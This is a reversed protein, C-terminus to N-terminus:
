SPLLRRTSRLRPYISITLMSANSPFSQVILAHTLTRIIDHGYFHILGHFLTFLLRPSATSLRLNPQHQLVCNYNYRQVFSPTSRRASDPRPPFKDSELHPVLLVLHVLVVLVERQVTKELVQTFCISGCPASSCSKVEQRENLLFSQSGNLDILRCSSAGPVGPM